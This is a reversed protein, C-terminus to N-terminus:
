EEGYKQIIKRLEEEHYISPELVFDDDSSLHKFYLRAEEYYPVTLRRMFEVFERMDKVRAGKYEEMLLSGLDLFSLLYLYGKDGIFHELPVGSSNASQEPYIFCKGGAHIIKFGYQSNFMIDKGEELWEVFGDEPSEIVKGCSDCIWKKLPELM